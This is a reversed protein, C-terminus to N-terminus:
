KSLEWEMGQLAINVVKWSPLRGGELTVYELNVKKGKVLKELAKPPPGHQYGGILCLTNESKRHYETIFKAFTHLSKIETNSHSSFLLINKSNTKTIIEDITGTKLNIEEETTIKLFKKTYLKELLGRFRLFHSPARWTTLVEFYTNNVSHIILKPKTTGNFGSPHVLPSFLFQLLCHHVIDIRGRNEQERSNLASQHVALDLLVESSKKKRRKLDNKIAPHAQIKGPLSDLLEIGCDYLLFIIM